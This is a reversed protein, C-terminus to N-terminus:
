YLWFYIEFKSYLDDIVHQFYLQQNLPTPTKKKVVNLKKFTTSPIFIKFLM